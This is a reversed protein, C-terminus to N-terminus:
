QVTHNKELKPVTDRFFLNNLRPFPIFGAPPYMGLSAANLGAYTNEDSLPPPLRLVFYVQFVAVWDFHWAPQQQMGLHVVCIVYLICFIQGHLLQKYLIEYGKALQLYNRLKGSHYCKNILWIICLKLNFKYQTFNCHFIGFLMIHGRKFSELNLLSDVNESSQVSSVLSLLKQPM